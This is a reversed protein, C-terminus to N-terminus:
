RRTGHPAMGSEKTVQVQARFVAARIGALEGLLAPAGGRCPGEDWSRRPLERMLRKASAVDRTTVTLFGRPQLEFTAKPVIRSVARRIKADDDPAKWGAFPEGPLLVVTACSPGSASEKM